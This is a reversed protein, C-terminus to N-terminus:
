DAARVTFRAFYAKGSADFLELEVEDGLKLARKPEILMLHTAGPALTTERHAAVVLGALPRMRMVGGSMTMEHLEVRGFDASRGGAITVAEDGENRLTAYAALVDAGPPAGRIWADMIVVNGAARAGTALMLLALFPLLTPLRLKMATGTDIPLRIM